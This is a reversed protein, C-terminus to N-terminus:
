RAKHQLVAVKLYQQFIAIQNLIQDKLQENEEMLEQWPVDELNAPDFNTRDDGEEDSYEEAIEKIVDQKM